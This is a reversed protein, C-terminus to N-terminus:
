FNKGQIERGKRGTVALFRSQDWTLGYSNEPSSLLMPVTTVKGQLIKRGEDEDNCQEYWFSLRAFGLADLFFLMKM